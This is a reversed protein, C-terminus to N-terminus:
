CRGAPPRHAILEAAVRGLATGVEVREGKALAAARPGLDMQPHNMALPVWRLLPPAALIQLKVQRCAREYHKLDAPTNLISFIFLVGTADYFENDVGAEYFWRVLVDLRVRQSTLFFKLPEQHM